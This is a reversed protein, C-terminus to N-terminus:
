IVRDIDGRLMIQFSDSLVTPESQKVTRIVWIPHNAAITNFRLVNGSAWGNGWGEKQITFYPENTVPNIPSCDETIVGTGIQGSTEGIIRFATTSTFVIAWREQINGKNTVAIPYLTDNYNASIAAGVAEDKWLNDWTSQVFKRTYRAQMDGIVLASGIITHAPDYNHTLPKTFTVQGNIKVDRVLGMDQYRYKATLPGTLNGLAFDGNLTVKGYDYDVTYLDFPIKIGDVDELECWSIRADNLSYTQGAIYDPLEQSKSASVIGIEGSRFIPVRGDIPLRVASLGLLEADIPIYSYGVASYKITEPLVMIPKHIWQKADKTYELEAVYWDQAM